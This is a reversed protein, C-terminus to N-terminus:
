PVLKLVKATSSTRPPVTDSFFDEHANLVKRLFAPSLSLEEAFRKLDVPRGFLLEAMKRFARPKEVALALNSPEEVRWGRAGLQEFLYRYQRLSIIELDKARRILTQLSVGWKPKLAALSTLTVPTTIDYRIGEEPLLFEAAFLNAQQELAKPDGEWARHMVLHGLEHSVSFRLRDGPKGGSIVIVPKSPDLGVWGSFADRRELTVPLALVLVGGKELVNIVNTIPRDPSLGLESRTIKAAEEPLSTTKPLRLPLTKINKEMKEVAEYLVEAYRYAQAKELKSVVSHARFLLSGAPFDSGNPQKFFDPPFGTALAIARLIRDSPQKKGSELQAILPQEVQVLEALETQTFGSLERAQRLRESNVM